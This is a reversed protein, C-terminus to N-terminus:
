SRSLVTGPCLDLPKKTRCPTTIHSVILTKRQRVSL